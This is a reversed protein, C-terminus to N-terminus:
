FHRRPHPAMKRNCVTAFRERRRPDITTAIAGAATM